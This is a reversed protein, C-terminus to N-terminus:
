PTRPLTVVFTTGDGVDSRLTVSGGHARAIQDVIFLGLGINGPVGRAPDGRRLPEFLEDRLEAAIPEGHNHVSLAVQQADGGVRVTVPRDPSGYALANVVLNTLMQAIRDPDWIGAGDGDCELAIERGPHTQRVEDLAQAVTAHLDTAAPTVPLGQGMRAQTFDLLDRILRMARQGASKIRVVSAAAAPPLAGGRELLATNLMIVNLPNRLDHSVVGVLMQAFGLQHRLAEQAVAAARQAAHLKLATRIGQALRPASLAGKAIYDAAGARMLEVALAEDGHGTLMIVPVDIKLSRMHDLVALGDLRPMRFDLLVCDFPQSLMADFAGAADAMETLEARLACAALTRRLARRDVEDDDVLLIKLPAGAPALLDRGTDANM